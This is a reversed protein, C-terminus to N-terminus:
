ARVGLAHVLAAEEREHRRFAALLAGMGRQAARLDGSAVLADIQEISDRLRTHGLRAAVVRSACANSHCEVLPFYVAEETTFHRDLTESLEAMAAAVAAMTGDALAGLADTVRQDLEAHERWWREIQEADLGVAPAQELPEGVM